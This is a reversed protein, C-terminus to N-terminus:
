LLSHDPPFLYLLVFLLKSSFFIDLFDTFSLGEDFSLLPNLFLRKLSNRSIKEISKLHPIPISKDKIKTDTM